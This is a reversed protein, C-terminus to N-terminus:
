YTKGSMPTGDGFDELWHSAIAPGSSFIGFEASWYSALFIYGQSAMLM